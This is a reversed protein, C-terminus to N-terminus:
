VRCRGTTGFRLAETAPGSCPVWGGRPGPRGFRNATRCRGVSALRVSRALDPQHERVFPTPTGTRVRQGVDFPAMQIAHRMHKINTKVLPSLPVHFSRCSLEDIHGAEVFPARQKPARGLINIRVWTSRPINIQPTGDVNGAVKSLLRRRMSNPFARLLWSVGKLWSLPELAGRAVPERAFRAM